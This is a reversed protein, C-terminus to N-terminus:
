HLSPFGSPSAPPRHRDARKAVAANAVTVIRECVQRFTMVDIGLCLVPVGEDFAKSLTEETVNFMDGGILGVGHRAAAAVVDHHAQRLKGSTEPSPGGGVAFSLEGSAFVILKVQEVACIDDIQEVAEATEIMPIVLVNGNNHRIYNVLKPVSYGPVRM